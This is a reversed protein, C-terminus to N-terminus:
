AAIKEGRGKMELAEGLTVIKLLKRRSDHHKSVIAVCPIIKADSGVASLMDQIFQRAGTLDSYIKDIQDDIPLAEGEACAREACHLHEMLFIVETGHAGTLLCIAWTIMERFWANKKDATAINRIIGPLAVTDFMIGQSVDVGANVLYQDAFDEFYRVADSTSLAPESCRLVMAPAGAQLSMALLTLYKRRVRGFGFRRVFSRFM